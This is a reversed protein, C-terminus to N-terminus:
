HHCGGCGHHDHDHDHGCGDEGCGDEGCGGGCSGCNCGDSTMMNIMGQIEEATAERNEVVEGVFLLEAGALPHNMDMVVVDERVEVVTGTMRHGEADMLPVARGEQIMEADFRGDIVFIDKPLDLVHEEDYEGYAENAPISFEFKDGKNLGVVQNEFTELTTGMGSIFQFPHEATAEEVFDKEGDEMAYLKYAVTIYKNSTAEM